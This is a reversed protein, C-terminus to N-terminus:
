RRRPRWTVVNVANLAVWCGIVARSITRRTGSRALVSSNNETQRYWGNRVLLTSGAGAASIM